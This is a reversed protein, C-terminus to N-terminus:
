NSAIDNADEKLTVAKFMRGIAYFYLGQDYWREFQLEYKGVELRM